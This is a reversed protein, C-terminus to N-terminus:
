TPLIQSVKTMTRQNQQDRQPQQEPSLWMSVDLKPAFHNPILARLRQIAEARGSFSLCDEISEPNDRVHVVFSPHNNVSANKEGEFPRLQQNGATTTTRITATIPPM